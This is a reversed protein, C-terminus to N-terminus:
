ATSQRPHDTAWHNEMAAQAVHESPYSPTRWACTMCVFSVLPQTDTVRRDVVDEIVSELEGEVEELAALLAEHADNASAGETTLIDGREWAEGVEDPLDDLDFTRTFRERITRTWTIQLETM